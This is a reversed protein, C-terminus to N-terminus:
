SKACVEVQGCVVGVFSLCGHGGGYNSGVIGSLSRGCVRAKLREAV